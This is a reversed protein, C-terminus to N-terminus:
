ARGVGTRTGSLVAAYLLTLSLWVLTALFLHVIQLWVPALMLLNLVGGGLQIPYTILVLWCYKHVEPSDFRTRLHSVLYYLYFGVMGAFFPHWVRLRVLLPSTRSFDQALGEALSEAPFLTDGLATVAGAMSMVLVGALASILLWKTKGTSKWDLVKGGSLRWATLSLFFLLLMTNALHIGMVVVRAASINDAVWEFLVLGAGVLSESVMFVMAGWALRRIQSGKGSVRVVGVLMGVVLLFAIGSTVRHAFEITTELMDTRPIVEGNCLPWHSGCGAGSGTARVYAGWLVVLVNYGTVVWAYKALNERRNEM